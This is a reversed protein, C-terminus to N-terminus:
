YSTEVNRVVRLFMNTMWQEIEEPQMNKLETNATNIGGKNFSDINVTINKVQAASGTIRNISDAGAQMGDGSGNVGGDNNLSGLPDEKLPDEAALQEKSKFRLNSILSLGEMKNRFNEASAAKYADVDKKRETKLREIEDSAATKIPSSLAAKAAGFEGSFALSIAKAINGFLGSIWQGFDKFKLWLMDLGYVAGDWMNNFDAGIQKVWATFVLQIGKWVDGWGETHKIALAILAIIVGVAIVIMGIPNAATVINFAIMTLKAIGLVMVIDTVAAWVADFNEWVFALVNNVKELVTVWIPLFKQGIEATIVGLRNKAMNSIVTMDGKANKLAQAFNFESKDFGELTNFFDDAGTKLKIFLNRLGEPGGIKGIAADIERGNMGKFKSAVDKMIGSMDRMENNVDYVKVGMAEIGSITSKQTLGEFATKTMTAGTNADKAVATFAAFLKNATDITQNAGAAAGAYETQVKALEDFTVIGMQVTKANSLLLSDIDKVQLGFARMAKVTANVSDNINAGTVLSYNGVKKFVKAADDGFLGTGSQLDYFANTTDMLDAGVEFAANKITKQYREMESVSKDMNLQKIPLFAHQFEAAKKTTIGIISAAAIAGGILLTYPNGLLSMASGFMPIQNRMATFMAVHHNKLESLKNKMSGVGENVKKKAESMGTKIRDKMELLLTVKAQGDM